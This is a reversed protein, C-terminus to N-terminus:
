SIWLLFLSTTYCLSFAMKNNQEKGSTVRSVCPLLLLIFFLILFIPELLISLTFLISIISSLFINQFLVISGFIQFIQCQQM